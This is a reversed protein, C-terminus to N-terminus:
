KPPPSITPSSSSSADSQTQSQSSSFTQSSEIQAMPSIPNNLHSHASPSNQTNPPHPHQATPQPGNEQPATRESTSPSSSSNSNLPSVQTTGVSSSPPSHAAHLDSCPNAPPTSPSNPLTTPSHGGITSPPIDDSTSIETLTPLAFLFTSEDFQVHRSTYIRGTLIHLCYYASQTNSYGLFVCRLSRDDLKHHNYPRMWPYCSCGFVRLKDYNPAVGFLKQYPSQLHLIPTPLRNILYVAVAFAYPWYTKPVSATSLLTMGTEVIHRHKRESIRNHEPTHPPSTLHSIGHTALYARLAVYEGGNDSYLTGIKTQFRNEVFSKFAMFTEKVHSKQKLPYLWTYRTYHDVFIVYYKFNDLSLIPSSWVDSFLYELTRSSTITSTAFPIKHSKNIFCDSCPLLKHFQKSVPLSFQSIVTNLISSAPHGLRSHWSSVTAKSSPTAFMASVQSPNIPWEYLEDRTRGHLLPTGTSLDKVQFSAPFFEVSVRNANCLRYVSILKKHIDPVYLVNNLHLARSQTPLSISGTHTIPMTSGDAIIVDAPDQYPQHLSLNHLDSTM